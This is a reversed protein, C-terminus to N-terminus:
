LRDAYGISLAPWPLRPRPVLLAMALALTKEKGHIVRGGHTAVRSNPRSHVSGLCPTSPRLQRAMRDIYNQRLAQALSWPRVPLSSRLGGCRASCVARLFPLM